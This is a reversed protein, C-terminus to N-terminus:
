PRAFFAAGNEIGYPAGAQGVTIDTMTRTGASFRAVKGTSLQVAPPIGIVGAPQEDFVFLSNGNTSWVVDTPAAAGVHSGVAVDTGVMNNLKVWTGSTPSNSTKRWIEGLSNALVPRGTSDVAIRTGRGSSDATWGTGNAKYVKFGNTGPTCGLIWVHQASGVVGNVGIDTACGSGTWNWSGSSVSASSRAHINGASDVVWPIGDAGVAIRVAGGNASENQFASGNWKQIRFGSANPQNSIIWIAASASSAIDRAPANFAVWHNYLTQIAVYSDWDLGRGGSTPGMVGGNSSHSLGLAHGIEHLAVAQIDLSGAAPDDRLALGSNFTIGLHTADIGGTSGTQNAGLCPQVGCTPVFDFRIDPSAATTETFTRGTMSAWTAFATRVSSLIAANSVNNAAVTGVPPFANFRWTITTKALPWVPNLSVIDFKSSPDIQAIGEPVGCQIAVLAAWTAPDVVGTPELGSRGQFALVAETTTEDYTGSIPTQAIMPRWAPYRAQLEDNPLYGLSALYEQVKEVDVGSAGAGIEPGVSAAQSGSNPGHEEGSAMSANGAECGYMTSLLMLSSSIVHRARSM